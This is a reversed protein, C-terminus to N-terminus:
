NSAVGDRSSANGHVPLADDRHAHYQVTINSDTASRAHSPVASLGLMGMGLIVAKV